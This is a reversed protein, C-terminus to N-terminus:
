FGRYTKLTQKEDMEHKKTHSGEQPRWLLFSIKPDDWKMMNTKINYEKQVVKKKVLWKNAGSAGGKNQM